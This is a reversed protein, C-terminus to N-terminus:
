PQSALGVQLDRFSGAWNQSLENGGANLALQYRMNQWAAPDKPTHNCVQQNDLYFVLELTEPNIVIQLEHWAAPDAQGTKIFEPEDGGSFVACAWEGSTTMGMVLQWNGLRGSQLLSAFLYGSGLGTYPKAFVSAQLTNVETLSWDQRTVVQYRPSGPPLKIELSGEQQLVEISDQQGVRWNNPNPFGQPHTQDFDDAFEKRVIEPASPIQPLPEPMLSGLLLKDLEGQFASTLDKGYAGISIQLPVDMWDQASELAMAGVWTEDLYVNVAPTEPDFVIMVDVYTNDAVEQAPVFVVKQDGSTQTCAFHTDMTNLHCELRWAGERGNLLVFAVANGEGDYPSLKMRTAVWNLDSAPWTQTTMLAINSSEGVPLNFQMSGRQQAGNGGAETWEKWIERNYAGDYKPDDFSEELLLRAPAPPHEFGPLPTEQYVVQIEPEATPQIRKEAISGLLLLSFLLAFIAFTTGLVARWFRRRRTVKQPQIEEAESTEEPAAQFLRTFQMSDQNSPPTVPAAMENAADQLPLDSELQALARAFTLMDPYRDETKKALAKFLLQEVKEPLDPIYSTPRPLPDSAQKLLVAAPTDATYPRHGTVMEFFIVGLAYIDSQPSTDGLWQEPAMYDPTGFSMGSGTLTVGDNAELIKALGFDTLMPRGSSTLLINAPKVDRHVIKMEHAYQLADAVPLLLSATEQFSLPKHQSTIKEKLNGGAIFDMVLYPIGDEEGFDNIHVINPHTLQALAKAEREFRRIFDEDQRFDPRIIKIAVKRELRTDFAQYITAMGGEGLQCTIHYRGLTRGVLNKM